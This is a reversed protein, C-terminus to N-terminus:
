VSRSGLWNWFLVRCSTVHANLNRHFPLWFLTHGSQSLSYSDLTAYLKGQHVPTHNTSEHKWLSGGQNNLRIWPRQLASTTHSKTTSLNNIFIVLKTLGALSWAQLLTRPKYFLSSYNFTSRVLKRLVNEEISFSQSVMAGSFYPYTTSVAHFHGLSM